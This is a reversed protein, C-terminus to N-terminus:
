GIYNEGGVRSNITSSYLQLSKEEAYIEPDFSTSVQKVYVAFDTPHDAPEDCEIGKAYDANNALSCPVVEAVFQQFKNDIRMTDKWNM